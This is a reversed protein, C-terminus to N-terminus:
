RPEEATETAFWFEGGDSALWEGAKALRAETERRVTRRCWIVTITITAAATFPGALLLWGIIWLWSGGDGNM